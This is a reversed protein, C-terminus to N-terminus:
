NNTVSHENRNICCLREPIYFQFLRSQENNMYQLALLQKHNEVLTGNFWAPTVSLKAQLNILALFFYVSGFKLAEDKYPSRSKEQRTKKM